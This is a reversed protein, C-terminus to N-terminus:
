RHDTNLPVMCKRMACLYRERKEGMPGLNSDQSQWPNKM